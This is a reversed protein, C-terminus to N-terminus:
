RFKIKHQVRSVLDKSLGYSFVPLLPCKCTCTLQVALNMLLYKGSDDDRLYYIRYKAEKRQLDHSLSLSCVLANKPSNM